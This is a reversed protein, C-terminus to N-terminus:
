KANLKNLLYNRNKNELADELPSLIIKENYKVELAKALIFDALHPNRPLIPGHLYTAITNKYVYGETIDSNNNGTGIVTNGITNNKNDVITRGSHNEFGILFSSKYINRNSFCSHNLLKKNTVKVVVDGIIRKSHEHNQITYFPLIDLCKIITKDAKQYYKGLFQYAGCIYLGPVGLEIKEKLAKVKDEKLDTAVIEQQKDEAGGMILLDAAIIDKYNAGISIKKVELTLDRNKARYSLSLINGRDGYTNMLDDYLWGLVLKM